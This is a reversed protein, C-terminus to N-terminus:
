PCACRIEEPARRVAERGFRAAVARAVPSALSEPTEGLVGLRALSTVPLRLGCPVILRFGDLDGGVNLAFGHIAVGRRVHVGTACLKADGVWLGPAECRYAAEVGLPRAADAVGELTGRVHARVGDPIRLIPYGVLQGPGHYTVDGGRNSEVLDVGRARLEDQDFLVNERRASRGLTVVPDHECLLLTEAGRGGLVAARLAEQLEWAARYDIRGM